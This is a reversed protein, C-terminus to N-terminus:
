DYRNLLSGAARRGAHWDMCIANATQQSATGVSACRAADASRSSCISTCSPASSAACFDSAGAAGCPERRRNARVSGSSRGASRGACHGAACSTGASTTSASCGSAKAAARGASASSFSRAERSACFGNARGAVSHFRRAGFRYAFSTSACRGTCHGPRESFISRGM